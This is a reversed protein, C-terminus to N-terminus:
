LVSDSMMNKNEETDSLTEVRDTFSREPKSPSNQPGSQEVMLMHWCSWFSNVLFISALGKVHMVQPLVHTVAQSAGSLKM